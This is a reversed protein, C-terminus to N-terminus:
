RLVNGIFYLGSIQVYVEGVICQPPGSSSKWKAMPLLPASIPFTPKSSIKLKVFNFKDWISRSWHSKLCQVRSDQGVTSEASDSVVCFIVSLQFKSDLINGMEWVRRERSRWSMIDSLTLFCEMELIFYCM